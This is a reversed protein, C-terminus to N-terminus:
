VREVRVDDEGTEDRFLGRRPKDEIKQTLVQWEQM